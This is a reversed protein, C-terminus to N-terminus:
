WVDDNSRRDNEISFLIIFLMLTLFSLHCPFIMNPLIYWLGVLFHRTNCTIQNRAQTAGHTIEVTYVRQEETVCRIISYRLVIPNCQGFWLHSTCSCSIPYCAVSAMRPSDLTRQVIQFDHVEYTFILHMSGSHTVCINALPSM